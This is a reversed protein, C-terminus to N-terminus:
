RTKFVLFPDTKTGDSCALRMVTVREKSKGACKVWVSKSGRMNVTSTPVYEYNVGTQDANYLRTVGLEKVKLRVANSFEIATQVANEPTTQGERTRRRISLRHRRLFHKRWSWSASFDGPSAGSSQHVEQAQLKLMLGTVPAGDARLDKVWRVLQEEAEVSLMCGMGLARGRQHHRAGHACKTEIVERAEKWAYIQRKKTKVQALLLDSFFEAITAAMTSSDLFRLVQLKYDYSVAMHKYQKPRSGNGTTLTRGTRAM